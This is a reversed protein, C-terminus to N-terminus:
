RASPTPTCHKIEGTGDWQTLMVFFDCPKVSLPQARDYEALEPDHDFEPTRRNYLITM